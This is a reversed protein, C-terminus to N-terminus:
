GFNQNKRILNKKRIGFLLFILLVGFSFGAFDIWVDALRSTRGASFIQITEDVAASFLGAFALFWLKKKLRNRFFASLVIGFFCFEAAHALKRVILDALLPDTVSFFRLLKAFVRSLGGSVSMPLMSNIWIFGLVAAIFLIYLITKKERM